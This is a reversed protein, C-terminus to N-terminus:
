RQKNGLGGGGSDTPFQESEPTRPGPICLPHSLLVLEDTMAKWFLCVFVFKIKLFITDWFIDM